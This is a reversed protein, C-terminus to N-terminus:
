GRLGDVAARSTTLLVTHYSEILSVIRERPGNLWEDSGYFRDEQEDRDALSAFARILVYEEVGKENQESPGFRVADIGFAQLLPVSQERVLRHFADSTGEKLRYTRIELVPMHM